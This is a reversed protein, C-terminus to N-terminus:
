ALEGAPATLVQGPHIVDPDAGIVARNQAYWRPWAAAIAADDSGPPLHTAAISWLSDGPRVTVTASTAPPTPTGESPQARARDPAAAPGALAPSTSPADTTAATGGPQAAPAEAPVAEPQTGPAPSGSGPTGHDPATADAQTPPASALGASTVQWGLDFTDRAAAAAASATATGGGDPELATAPGALAGLLGATVGVAIARRLVAPVLRAAVAETRAASRGRARGVAALATLLCGIGIVGFAAAGAAICVVAVADELARPGPQALGPGLAHAGRVLMAVLAGCTAGALTSRAATALHSRARAHSTHTM